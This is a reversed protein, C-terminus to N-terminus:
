ELPAVVGQGMSAPVCLLQYASPTVGRQLLEVLSFNVADAVVHELVLWAQPSGMKCGTLHHM